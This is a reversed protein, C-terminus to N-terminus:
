HFIKHWWRVLFFERKHDNNKQAKKEAKKMRKRTKKTNYRKNYEKKDAAATMETKRNKKWDRKAKKRDLRSNPTKAETNSGGSTGGTESQAMMFLPLLLFAVSLLAIRRSLLKIMM